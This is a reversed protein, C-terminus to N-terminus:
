PKPALPYPLGRIKYYQELKEVANKAIAESYKLFEGNGQGYFAEEFERYIVKVGKANTRVWVLEEEPDINPTKRIIKPLLPGPRPWVEWGAM